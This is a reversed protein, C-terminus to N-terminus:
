GEKIGDVSVFRYDTYGALGTNKEYGIYNRTTLAFYRADLDAGNYPITLELKRSPDQLKIFSDKSPNTTKEGWLRSVSDVAQTGEGEQDHIYRGKLHSDM